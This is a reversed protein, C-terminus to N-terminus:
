AKFEQFLKEVSQRHATQTEDTSTSTYIMLYKGNNSLLAQAETGFITFKGTEKVSDLVEKATDNLNDLTYSYLEITVTANEFAIVFRDGDDAGIYESRVIQPDGSIAGKATLYQELGDLTDEYDDESVQVEPTSVTGSSPSSTEKTNDVGCATMALCFVAALGICLLKKM